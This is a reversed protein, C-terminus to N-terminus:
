VGVSDDRWQLTLHLNTFGSRHLTRIAAVNDSHVKAVVRHIGRQQFHRLAYQALLTGLGAGRAAPRVYLSRLVGYKEGTALTTRTVVWLYAIIEDSASDVLVVMGDPERVLAKRLKNLHYELDEIPDEPFAARALERELYALIPLDETRALRTSTQPM